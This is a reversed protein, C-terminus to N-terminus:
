PLAIALAERAEGIAAIKAHFATWDDREAIAVWIAEIEDYLLEQPESRAFYPLALREPRDAQYHRLLADRVLNQFIQQDPLPDPM